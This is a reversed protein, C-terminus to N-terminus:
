RQVAVVQADRGATAPAAPRLTPDLRDRDADCDAVHQRACSDSSCLTFNTNSQPM